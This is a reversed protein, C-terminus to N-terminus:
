RNNRDWSALIKKHNKALQEPTMADIEADTFYDKEATGTAVRGVEKPPTARNATKKAKVAWYADEPTMLPQGTTPDIVSVYRVYEDGLEELSKVSPDIKQIRKLDIQMAKEAIADDREQRLQENELKLQASEHEREYIEAVEDESMGSLEALAAIEGNEERGTLHAFASSRAENSARLEALERQADKLQRRMEAFSEDATNKHREQTEEVESEPEAVEQEEAGTDEEPLEAVEEMEVSTSEFESM